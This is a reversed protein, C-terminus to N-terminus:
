QLRPLKALSNTKALSNLRGVANRVRNSPGPRAPGIRTRSPSALTPQNGRLRKPARDVDGDDPRSRTLTKSKTLPKAQSTASVPPRRSPAVTQTSNGNQARLEKIRPKTPVTSRFAFDFEKPLTLIPAQTPHNSTKRGGTEHSTTSASSANNKVPQKNSPASSQVHPAEIHGSKTVPQTGSSTSPEPNAVSHCTDSDSPVELLVTCRRETSSGITKAQASKADFAEASEISPAEDAHPLSTADVSSARQSNSDTANTEGSHKISVSELSQSGQSEVVPRSHSDASRTTTHSTKGAAEMIKPDNSVHLEENIGPPIVPSLGRSSQSVDVQQSPPLRAGASPRSSSIKDQAKSTVRSRPQVSSPKRSLGSSKGSPNDVKPQNSPPKSPEGTGASILRKKKSASSASDGDHTSLRKVRVLHSAVAPAHTAESSGVSLPPRGDSASRSTSPPLHNAPGPQNTPVRSSEGTGASPVRLKKAAVTTASVSDVDIVIPRKGKLLNPVPAAEPSYPPSRARADSVSRVTSSSAVPRNEARFQNSIARSPEGSERSHVRSKKSVATNSNGDLTSPRKGRVVAVPLDAPSLPRADSNASSTSPPDRVGPQNSPGNPSEGSSGSPVRSKKPAASASDPDLTSPRKAGNLRAAPAMVDTAESPHVSAPPMADLASKATFTPPRNAPRLQDNPVGSYENISTSPVRSKKSVASTSDVDLAPARKVRILRPAPALAGTAEPLSGPPVRANPMPEAPSTPSIAAIESRKNTVQSTFEGRQTQEQQEVAQPKSLSPTLPCAAPEKPKSHGTFLPDDARNEPLPKSIVKAQKGGKNSVNTHSERRISHAPGTPGDVSKAKGKKAEILPLSAANSEQNKPVRANLAVTSTPNASDNRSPHHSSVAETTSPTSTVPAIDPLKTVERSPRTHDNSPPTSALHNPHSPSHSTSPPDGFTLPVLPPKVLSPSDRKGASSKRGSRRLRSASLHITDPPLPLSVPGASYPTSFQPVGGNQCVMSLNSGIGGGELDGSSIAEVTSNPTPLEILASLRSGARESVHIRNSPRRSEAKSNRSSDASSNAKKPERPGEEDSSLNIQRRPNSLKRKSSDSQGSLLRQANDKRMNSVLQSASSPELSSTPQAEVTKGRPESAPNSHNGSSISTRVVQSEPESAGSLSALSRVVRSPRLMEANSVSSARQLTSTPATQVTQFVKSNASNTRSLRKFSSLPTHQTKVKEMPDSVKAHDRSNASLLEVSLARSSRSIGSSQLRSALPREPSLPIPLVKIPSPHTTNPAENIPPLRRASTSTQELTSSGLSFATTQNVAKPITPLNNREQDKSPCAASDMAPRTPLILTSAASDLRASLNATRPTAVDQSPDIASADNAAPVPDISGPNSTTFRNVNEDFDAFRTKKLSKPPELSIGRHNKMASPHPIPKATVEAALDSSINTKRSAVPSQYTPDQQSVKNATQSSKSNTTAPCESSKSPLISCSSLPRRNANGTQYLQRTLKHTPSLLRSAMDNVPSIVRARRSHLQDTPQKNNSPARQLTKGLHTFSTEEDESAALGWTAMDTQMINTSDAGRDENFLWLSSEAQLSQSQIQQRSSSAAASAENSKHSTFPNFDEEDEEEDERAKGRDDDQAEDDSSYQNPVPAPRSLVQPRLPSSPPKHSSTARFAKRPISSPKAM